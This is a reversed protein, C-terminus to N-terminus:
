KSDTVHFRIRSPLPRESTARMPRRVTDGVRHVRGRNATGGLLPVEM